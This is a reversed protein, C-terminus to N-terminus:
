CGGGSLPEGILLLGSSPLPVIRARLGARKSLERLESQRYFYVPCGRLAYRIKRVPARILSVRPFSAIVLKNSLERMRVLVKLPDACYDFVGLAVVADFRQTFVHDMVDGHIFLCNEKVGAKAAFVQALQLMQRSFDIATIQSAGAQVFLPENRGSGCGVDLLTHPGMQELEVLTLRIREYLAKRFIRNLLYQWKNGTEYLRDFNGARQEFFRQVTV